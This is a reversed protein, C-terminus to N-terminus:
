CGSGVEVSVAFSFSHVRYVAHKISRFMESKDICHDCRKRPLVSGVTYSFLPQVPGLALLNVLINQQLLYVALHAQSVHTEGTLSLDLLSSVLVAPATALPANGSPGQLWSHVPAQPAKTGFAAALCACAASQVAQIDSPPGTLKQAATQIRRALTQTTLVCSSPCTCITRALNHQATARSLCLTFQRSTTLAAISKHCKVGNTQHAKHQSSSM